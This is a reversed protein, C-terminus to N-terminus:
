GLKCVPILYYIAIGIALVILFICLSQVIGWGTPWPLKAEKVKTHQKMGLREEIEICRDLHLKTINRYRRMFLFFAIAMGIVVIAFFSVVVSPRPQNSIVLALGAISGGIIISGIEWTLHGYYNHMDQSLEYEKLFTRHEQDTLSPESDKALFVVEEYDVQSFLHCPEKKIFVVM